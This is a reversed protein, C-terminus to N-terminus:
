GDDHDHRAKGNKRDPDPPWFRIVREEPDITVVFRELIPQGIIGFERPSEHVVTKIKYPGLHATVLRNLRRVQQESYGEGDFFVARRLEVCGEADDMLKEFVDTPVLFPVNAGTDVLCSVTDDGFSVDVFPMNNDISLPGGILDRTDVGIQFTGNALDLRATVDRFHEYGLIGAVDEDAGSTFSESKPYLHAAVNELTVDGIQMSHFHLLLDRSIRGDADDALRKM